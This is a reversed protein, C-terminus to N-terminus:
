GAIDDRVEQLYYLSPVYDGDPNRLTTVLVDGRVAAKTFLSNPDITPDIHLPKREDSIEDITAAWSKTKDRDHRRFKIVVNEALYSDTEPEVQALDLESPVSAIAKQSIEARPANESTIARAQNTKAPAFFDISSKIVSRKRAGGLKADLQERVRDPPLNYYDGAVVILQEREDELERPKKHMVKEFFASAGYIAVIMVLVTVLGAYEPAIHQGSIAHVLSDVGKEIDHQFTLVVAAALAEKLPSEQVVSNLTIRISDISLGDICGELVLLADKVLREQALLSSAVDQVTAKGDFEYTVSHPLTVEPM